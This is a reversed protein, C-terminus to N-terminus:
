ELGLCVAESAKNEDDWSRLIYELCEKAKTLKAREPSTLTELRMLEEEIAEITAKEGLRLDEWWEQKTTAMILIEEM